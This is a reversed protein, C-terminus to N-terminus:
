YFLKITSTIRPNDDNGRSPVTLNQSVLSESVVTPITLNDGDTIMGFRSTWNSFSTIQRINVKRYCEEERIWDRSTPIQRIISRYECGSMSISGNCCIVDWESPDVFWSNELLEVFWFWWWRDFPLTWRSSHTVEHDHSHTLVHEDIVSPHLPLETIAILHLLILQFLELAQNAMMGTKSKPILSKLKGQHHYHVRRHHFQHIWSPIM